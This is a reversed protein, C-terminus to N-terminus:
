RAEPRYRMFAFASADPAWCPVNISGQGGFLEVVTRPNRGDPDTLRLAVDLDRPHGTVGAPYALYLVASGDPAPHPFWNVFGDDTVAEPRSGDAEMRWIQASGTRDSNFWISGDPAYDPGDNHGAARTLRLEEGGEMAITYIDFAGDRDGCYALRAGDPSWGHWYSPNRTTVQVPVGGGAPLVYITSVGGANHSIALRSGDPSFGHDNNCADAFGTDIPELGAPGDLAVRWLRGDGNVILSAGDPSWNPAELLRESELVIRRRGTARERIELISRL